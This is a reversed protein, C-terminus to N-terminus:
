SQSLTDLTSILLNYPNPASPIEKELYAKAM